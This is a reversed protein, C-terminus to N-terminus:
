SVPRGAHWLFGDRQSDGALPGHLVGVALVGDLNVEHFSAVLRGDPPRDGLCAAM